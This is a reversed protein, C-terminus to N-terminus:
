FLVKKGGDVEIIGKGFDIIAIKSAEVTRDNLEIRVNRLLKVPEGIKLDWEGERAEFRLTRGSGQYEGKIEEFYNKSIVTSRVGMFRVGRRVARKGTLTISYDAASLSFKFHDVTSVVDPPKSQAPQGRHRAPFRNNLIFSAAAVVLIVATSVVLFLIKRRLQFRRNISLHYKGYALIHSFLNDV